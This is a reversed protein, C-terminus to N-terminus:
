QRWWWCSWYWPIGCCCCCCCCCCRRRCCHPRPAATCSSSAHPPTLANPSRQPPSLPAAPPPPGSLPLSSRGARQQSEPYEYGTPPLSVSSRLGLKTALPLLLSSGIAAAAQLSSPNLLLHTEIHISLYVQHYLTPFNQTHCAKAKYYPQTTATGTNNSNSEKNSSDNNMVATAMTLTTPPKVPNHEQRQIRKNISSYICSSYVEGTRTNVDYHRVYM